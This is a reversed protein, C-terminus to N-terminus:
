IRQKAGDILGGMSGTTDLVFVMELAAKGNAQDQVQDPPEPLPVPTPSHAFGAQIVGIGIVFTVLGIAIGLTLKNAM